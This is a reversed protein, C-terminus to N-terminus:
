EDVPVKGKDIWYACVLKEKREQSWSEVIPGNEEYLYSYAQSIEYKTLELNGVRILKESM